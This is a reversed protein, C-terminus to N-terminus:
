KKVKGDGWKIVTGESDVWFMKYTGRTVSPGPYTRQHKVGSGYDYTAVRGPLNVTKESTWVFVQLKTEPDDYVSSAPGHNTVMESIKHGTWNKPDKPKKEAWAPSGLLVLVCITLVTKM